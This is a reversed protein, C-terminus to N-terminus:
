SQDRLARRLATNAAALESVTQEQHVVMESAAGFEDEMLDMESKMSAVISESNTLTTSLDLRLSDIKDGLRNNQIGLVGALVLVLVAAAGSILYCSQFARSWWTAARSQQAVAAPMERAPQAVPERAAQDLIRAKLGAPPPTIPPVAITLLGAAETL